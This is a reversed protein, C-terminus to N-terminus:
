RVVRRRGPRKGVGQRSEAWTRHARSVDTSFPPFHFDGWRTRGAEMRPTDGRILIKTLLCAYRGRAKQGGAAKQPNKKKRFKPGTFFAKYSIWVIRGNGRDPGSRETTRWFARDVDDGDCQPCRASFPKKDVRKKYHRNFADM